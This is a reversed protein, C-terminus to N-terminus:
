HTTSKKDADEQLLHDFCFPRHSVLVDPTHPAPQVGQVRCRCMLALGCRWDVLWDVVGTWWGSLWGAVGRPMPAQSRSSPWPMIGAALQHLSVTWTWPMVMSWM